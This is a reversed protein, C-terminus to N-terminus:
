DLKKKIGWLVKNFNLWQIKASAYDELQIFKLYAFEIESEEFVAEGIKLAIREIIEEQAKIKAHAKNEIQGIRQKAVGLDKGISELTEPPTQGRRKLVEKERKTLGAIFPYFLNGQRLEQKIINQIKNSM